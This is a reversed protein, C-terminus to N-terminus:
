APGSVVSVAVVIVRGAVVEIPVAPPGIAFVVDRRVWMHDRVPGGRLDAVRPVEGAGSAIASHDAGDRRVAMKVARWCVLIHAGDYLPPPAAEEQSSQ